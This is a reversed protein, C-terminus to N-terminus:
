CPVSTLIMSAVTLLRAVLLFRPKVAALLGSGAVGSM